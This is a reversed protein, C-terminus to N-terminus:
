RPNRSPYIKLDLRLLTKGHAMTDKQGSIEFMERIRSGHHANNRNDIIIRKTEKLVKSGIVTDVNTEEPLVMIEVMFNIQCDKIEAELDERFDLRTEAGGVGRKRSGHGEIKTGKGHGVVSGKPDETVLVEKTCIRCRHDYNCFNIEPINCVNFVETFIINQLVSIIM